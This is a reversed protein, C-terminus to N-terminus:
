NNYINYNYIFIILVLYLFSIILNFKCNLVIYLCTVKEKRNKNDERLLYQYKLDISM